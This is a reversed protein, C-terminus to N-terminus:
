PVLVLTVNDDIAADDPHRATAAVADGIGNSMYVDAVRTAGGATQKRLTVAAAQRKAALGESSRGITGRTVSTRTGYRRKQTLTRSASSFTGCSRAVKPPPRRAM